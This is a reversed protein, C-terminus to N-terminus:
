LEGREKMDKLWYSEIILGSRDIQENYSDVADKNQQYWQEAVNDSQLGLYIGHAALDSLNLKRAKAAELLDAPITLNVRKKLSKIKIKPLDTITV